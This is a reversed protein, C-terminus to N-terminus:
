RNDRQARVAALRRGHATLSATRPAILGRRMRKRFIGLTCDSLLWGERNFCLVEVIKGKNRAFLIM